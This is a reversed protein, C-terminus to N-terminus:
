KFKLSPKWKEVDKGSLRAKKKESLARVIATYFPITGKGAGMQELEIELRKLTGDKILNQVRQMIEKKEEETKAMNAKMQAIETAAKEIDQPMKTRNNNIEQILKEDQWETHLTNARTNDINARAADLYFDKMEQKFGLDYKKTEIDMSTSGTGTLTSVTQAGKLISEQAAVKIQEAVLDLQADKMKTDYYVDFATRAAGGIDLSRPTPNYDPASSSRVPQATTSQGYILNPNLKADAYREMQAKPSNYENNRNWDALADERQRGYMMESWQRQKKDRSGGFLNNVVGGALQAGGLILPLLPLPM